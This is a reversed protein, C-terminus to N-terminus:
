LRSYNPFLTSLRMMIKEFSNSGKQPQEPRKKSNAEAAPREPVNATPTQSAPVTQPGVPRIGEPRSQV